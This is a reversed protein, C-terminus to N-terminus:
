PKPPRPWRVHESYHYITEYGLRLYLPAGMPSAQLTCSSAGREFALNTVAVTVLAGLGGTRAGPVTGVWQLGAVGDSEFMMATAIPRGERTAVVIHAAPDELLVAPQDFLDALVDAPMGYTGYAEANVTIFDQVGQADVVPRLVVGDVPAAAELPGHRIMQPVPDGFPELGAAGCAVRLDEDEGSDRVKVSYGRALNGFFADARAILEGGGLADDARFAGNAVVPIWTGGACLVAGGGEEVRGRSGWRTIARSFAILNRHGLEVERRSQSM